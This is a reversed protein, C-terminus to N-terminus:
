KSCGHFWGQFEYATNTSECYGDVFYNNIRKEGKNLCHQIYISDRMAIYKLWLIKKKSHTAPNFGVDNILAISQPKIFLTRCTFQCLSALTCCERFPEIIISKKVQQIMDVFLDRFKLCGHKLLNVDSECYRQM